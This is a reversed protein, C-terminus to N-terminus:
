LDVSFLRETPTFDIDVNQGRQRARVIVSQGDPASARVWGAPRLYLRGAPQGEVQYGRATLEQTLWDGLARDVQNVDQAAPRPMFGFALVLGATVFALAQGLFDDVISILVFAAVFGVPVSLIALIFRRNVDRREAALFATLLSTSAVTM